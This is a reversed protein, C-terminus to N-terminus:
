HDVRIMAHSAVPSQVGIVVIPQSSVNRLTLYVAAVDSGPTQRTWADRVVLSPTQAMVSCAVLTALCAYLFAVSKKLDM